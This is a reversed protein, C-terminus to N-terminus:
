TGLSSRAGLSMEMDVDGEEPLGPAPEATQDGDGKMQLLLDRATAFLFASGLLDRVSLAGNFQLAM